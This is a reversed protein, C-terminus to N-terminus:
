ARNIGGIVAVPTALILPCPTAVALVALVRLWDGSMGYAIACVVLTTPTFWVAYRDAARQLPAKSVQASRVLAVIRAYQSDRAIAEARVTLAGDLKGSGRMLQTGPAASIPLPEGTLMSADVHSTGDIVVADC